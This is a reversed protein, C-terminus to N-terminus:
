WSSGFALATQEACRCGGPRPTKLDGRLGLTIELESHTVFSHPASLSFFTVRPDSKLGSAFPSPPMRVLGWEYQTDSASRGTRVRFPSGGASLLRHPDWTVPICGHALLRTGQRMRCSKSFSALRSPPGGCSPPALPSPLFLSVQHGRPIGQSARISRPRHWPAGQALCPASRPGQASM